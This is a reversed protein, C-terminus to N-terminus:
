RLSRCCCAGCSGVTNEILSKVLTIEQRLTTAFGFKPNILVYRV